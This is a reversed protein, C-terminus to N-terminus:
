RGRRPPGKPSTSKPGSSQPGASKRSGPKPGASRSGAPKGSSTKPGTPKGGAPKPRPGSKRPEVAAGRSRREGKREKRVTKAHAKAWAKKEHKTPPAPEDLPMMNGAMQDFGLGALSEAFHTPLEAEVDIKGGDPHDVAIRRSHLHMKRSIGGTLFAEPGGYKGDGVIPHGIAAMHVRLQHTRGTFPQLEVWAARNGAREIVRYRSRAPQGEAEDVHMKEGGTGPQKAIPLEIMGDEISPVGVVLAWYVKKATRGSFAKAFFAAARSTRAVLLAGSTDKDLRHVLKPRGESDFQLADLLGDVHQLTKTGGQTALGPPKNLVFAQADQHIVLERAFAIEDDTLPPRERKPKGAVPVPEPPPFRLTQGAAIRDGPAARAGDVRLQGTRAWKAVTTFSTDPLHRKFWRDLRIDDDDPAVIFTRIDSM